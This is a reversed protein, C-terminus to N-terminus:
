KTKRGEARLRVLASRVYRPFLAAYSKLKRSSLGSLDLEELALSLRGRKMLYLADLLAKEPEAIDLDKDTRHGFFIDARLQRYEM